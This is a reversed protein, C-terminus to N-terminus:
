DPLDLASAIEPLSRQVSARFERLYRDEAEEDLAAAYADRMEMLEEAAWELEDAYNGYREEAEERGADRYAAHATRIAALRDGHDESFVRLQRDILDGFRRRRFM